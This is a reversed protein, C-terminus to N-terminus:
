NSYPRIELSTPNPVVETGIQSNLHVQKDNLKNDKSCLVSVSISCCM